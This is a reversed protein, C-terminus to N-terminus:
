GHGNLNTYAVETFLICIISILQKKNAGNQIYIQYWKYGFTNTYFIMSMKVTFIYM